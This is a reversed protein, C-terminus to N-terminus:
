EGRKVIVIKGEYIDKYIDEARRYGLNYFKNAYEYATCRSVLPCKSCEDCDGMAERAMEEIQKKEDM